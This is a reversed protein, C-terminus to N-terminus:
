VINFQYLFYGVLALILFFCGVNTACNVPKTEKMMKGLRRNLMKLQKVQSEVKDETKEMMQNQIDLESGIQYALDKLRGVTKGVMDLGKNIKKEQEDLIKKMEAAEPDDELRKGPEDSAGEAPANAPKLNMLQQRIIMKKGIQATQAPTAGAKAGQSFRDMNLTKAAELLEGCNKYCQERDKLQRELLQITNPSKKKKNAKALDKETNEVLGKIDALDKELDRITRNINHSQEVAVADQGNKKVGANREIIMDKLEKIGRSFATTKDRFPDGTSIEEKSDEDNKGCRQRISKLRNMSDRLASRAAIAM